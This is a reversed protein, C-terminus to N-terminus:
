DHVERGEGAPHPHAPDPLRRYRARQIGYQILISRGDPHVDDLKATFDTDRASSSAWLTVEIPGTVELDRRLRDSTFVLVDPRGLV